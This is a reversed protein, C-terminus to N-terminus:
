LSIHRSSPPLHWIRAPAHRLSQAVDAESWRPSLGSETQNGLHCSGPFVM